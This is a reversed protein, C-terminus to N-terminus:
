GGLLFRLIAYHDWAIGLINCARQTVGTLAIKGHCNKDAAAATALRTLVRCFEDDAACGIQKTARVCAQVWKERRYQLYFQGDTMRVGDAVRWDYGSPGPVM